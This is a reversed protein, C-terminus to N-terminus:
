PRGALVYGAWYYPHRWGPRSVARGGHLRKGGRIFERQVAAIADTKSMATKRGRWGRYFRAMWDATAADAVAWLSGLVSEAGGDLLTRSLGTVESGDDFTLASDCASLTVLGVGAFSRQRLDALALRQAGSLLLASHAESGPRFRFHAAIHLVDPKADIAALVERAGARDIATADGGARERWSSVVDAIERPVYDLVATSEDHMPSGLAVLRMRDSATRPQSQGLAEDRTTAIDGQLVVVKEILFAKGDHLAAFPIYRLAGDALIQVRGRRVASTNSWVPQLLADWLARAAPIPDLNPNRLSQRLAAAGNLILNRPTALRIRRSMGNTRVLAYVVDRGLVYRVQASVGHPLPRSAHEVSGKPVSVVGDADLKAIANLLSDASERTSAVSQKWKDSYEHPIGQLAVFGSFARAQEEQVVSRHLASASTARLQLSSLHKEQTTMPVVVPAAAETGRRRNPSRRVFVFQEEKAVQMAVEDAEILRGRDTLLELLRRLPRLYTGPSIEVAGGGSEFGSARLRAASLVNAGVKYMYVASDAGNTLHDRDEAAAFWADALQFSASENLLVALAGAHALQADAARGPVHSYVGAFGSQIAAVDNSEPGASNLASKSGMALLREADASRGRSVLLRAMDPYTAHVWPDYGIWMEPLAMARDFNVLAEDPRGALAHVHAIWLWVVHRDNVPRSVDGPDQPRENIVDIARLWERIADDYEGLQTYLAATSYWVWARSPESPPTLRYASDRAFELLPKPDLLRGAAMYCLGLQSSASILLKERQEAPFAQALRYAQEAFATARDIKQMVRLSFSSSLLARPTLEDTPGLAQAIDQMIRALDDAWLRQGATQRIFWRLRDRSQPRAAITDALLESAIANLDRRSEDFRGFWGHLFSEGYRLELAYHPPPQWDIGVGKERLSLWERILPAPDTPPVGAYHELVRLNQVFGWRTAGHVWPLLARSRQMEQLAVVYKDRNVAGDRWPLLRVRDLLDSIVRTAVAPAIPTQSAPMAVPQVASADRLETGSAPISIGLALAIYYLGFRTVAIRAACNSGALVAVPASFSCRMGDTARMLSVARVRCSCSM